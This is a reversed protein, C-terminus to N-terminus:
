ENLVFRDPLQGLEITNRDGAHFLPPRPKKSFDPFALSKLFPVSATGSFKAPFLKLRTNEQIIFEAYALPFCTIYNDSIIFPMILLINKMM